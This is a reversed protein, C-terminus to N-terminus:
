RRLETLLAQRDDPAPLGKNAKSNKSMDTQRPHDAVPAPATGNDELRSVRGLTM